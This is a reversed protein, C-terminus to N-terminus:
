KVYNVGPLFLGALLMVLVSKKRFKYNNRKMLLIHGALLKLM